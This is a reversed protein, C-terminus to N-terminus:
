TDVFIDMMTLGCFKTGMFHFVKVTCVPLDLVSKLLSNNHDKITHSLKRYMVPPNWPHLYCKSMPAAYGVDTFLRKGTNQDRRICAWM